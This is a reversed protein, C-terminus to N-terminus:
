NWARGGIEGKGLLKGHRLRGDNERGGKFDKLFCVVRRAMFRLTLPRKVFRPNERARERRIRV